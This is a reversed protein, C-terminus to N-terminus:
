LISLEMLFSEVVFQRGNAPYSPSFIWYNRPLCKETSQLRGNALNSSSLTVTVQNTYLHSLFIVYFFIQPGIAPAMTHTQILQSENDQECSPFFIFLSFLLYNQLAAAHTDEMEKFTSM